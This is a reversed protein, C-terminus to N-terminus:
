THIHHTKRILLSKRRTECVNVCSYFCKLFLYKSWTKVLNVPYVRKIFQSHLLVLVYQEFSEWSSFETSLRCLFGLIVSWVTHQSYLKEPKPLPRKQNFSKACSTTSLVAVHIEVWDDNVQEFNVISVGFCSNRNNVKFMYNSSPPHNSQKFCKNLYKLQQLLKASFAVDKMFRSM